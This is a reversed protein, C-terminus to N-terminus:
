KQDWRIWRARFSRDTPALLHKCECLGDKLKRCRGSDGVDVQRRGDDSLLLARQRNSDLVIAEPVLSGLNANELPVIIDTTAREWRFIRSRRGKGTPGAAILYTASSDVRQIARIGLGGLDLLIPEGLQPASAEGSILANPHHLPVVMAKDDVLPNRMAILLSAGDTAALGEINIGMPHQDGDHDLASEPRRRQTPVISDPLGLEALRLKLALAELLSEYPVGIPLVDPLQAKSVLDTAFFRRRAPRAKGRKNTGHSTIWFIRTGVRAAAEIDAERGGGGLFESLDREAIPLGPAAWSYFRLVNDEDSAVVFVEGTIQVGASADCTGRFELADNSAPAAGSPSAALLAITAATIRRLQARRIKGCRAPAARRTKSRDRRL